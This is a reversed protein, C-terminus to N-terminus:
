VYEKPPIPIKGDCPRWIHLVYPHCNIHEKPPAHLQFAWENDKFFTRKVLEMEDWKPVRHALSISLHEWGGGKAAIIRIIEGNLRTIIFAGHDIGGMGGGMCDPMKIRVVWDPLKDLRRM